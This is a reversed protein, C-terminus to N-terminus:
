ALLRHLAEKAGAVRLPCPRATAAAARRRHCTSARTVQGARPADLTTASAAMRRPPVRPARSARPIVQIPASLIGNSCHVLSYSAQHVM